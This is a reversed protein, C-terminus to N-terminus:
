QFLMELKNCIDLTMYHSNKPIQNFHKTIEKTEGPEIREFNNNINTIIPYKVDNSYTSIRIYPMVRTENSNNVIKAIVLIGDKNNIQYKEFTATQFEIGSSDYINFISYIPRLIPIIHDRPSLFLATIILFLLIFSTLKLLMIIRNKESKEIDIVKHSVHNTVDNEFYSQVWVHSCRTCRVERGEEKLDKESIRYRTGCNDCIIIM